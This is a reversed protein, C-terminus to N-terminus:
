LKKVILPDSCENLLQSVPKFFIPHIYAAAIENLPELVFKRESLHPHPIILGPQHIVEHNFFIIDIDILRPGNKEKRDRGMQNEILLIITLIERASLQTEVLIVQNLFMEQDTKGWPATEYVASRDVIRGCREGLLQAAVKLHDERTGMNGGTLLYAYNM